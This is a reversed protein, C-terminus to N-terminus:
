SIYLSTTYNCFIYSNKIGISAAAIVGAKKIKLVKDAQQEPREFRPLMGMGGLKGLAIAMDVGTITDVNASILPIKLTVKDSLKTSLDVESRSKIESYGPVLLVDDFSLALPFRQNM